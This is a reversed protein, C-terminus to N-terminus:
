NFLRFLRYKKLKEHPNSFIVNDKPRVEIQSQPMPAPNGIKGLFYLPLGKLCMQEDKIHWGIFKYGQVAQSTRIFPRLLLDTILNIGVVHM